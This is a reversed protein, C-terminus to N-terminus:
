VALEPKNQLTALEEPTNVSWIYEGGEFSVASAALNELWRKPSREGETIAKKLPSLLKVPLLCFLPQWGNSDAAVAPRGATVLQTALYSPIRPADACVFLAHSTKCASLGALMGVLPGPYDALSDSVVPYGYDRYTDLNRNAVIILENVQPSIHELVHEILPRGHLSLLGKDAGGMRSGAGGALIIGTIGPTQDLDSQTM